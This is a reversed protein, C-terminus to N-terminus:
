EKSGMTTERNMKQRRRQRARAKQGDSVQIAEKEEVHM